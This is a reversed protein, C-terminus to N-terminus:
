SKMLWALLALREQVGLELHHNRNVSLFHPTDSHKISPQTKSLLKLAWAIQMKALLAQAVLM